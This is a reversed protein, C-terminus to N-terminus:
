ESDAKSEPKSTTESATKDTESVAASNTVSDPESNSDNCLLGQMFGDIETCCVDGGILKGDYIMLSLQINKEHGPYNLVEYTYVEVEKGCFKELDFGQTKMLENYEKYVDNFEKPITVKKYDAYKEPVKWGLKSIFDQRTPEDTLTYEISIGQTESSEAVRHGAFIVLAIMGVLVLLILFACLKPRKIKFTKVVM